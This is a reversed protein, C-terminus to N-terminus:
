IIQVQTCKNTIHPHNLRQVPWFSLFRSFRPFRPFKKFRLKCNRSYPLISFESMLFSPIINGLNQSKQTKSKGNKWKEIKKGWYELHFYWKWKFSFCKNFTFLLLAFAYSSLVATKLPAIVHYLRGLWKFSAHNRGSDLVKNRSHACNEHVQQLQECTIKYM